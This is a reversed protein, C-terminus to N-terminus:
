CKEIYLAITTDENKQNNNFKKECIMDRKFRGKDKWDNYCKNM